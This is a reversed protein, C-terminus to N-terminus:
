EIVEDRGDMLQLFFESFARATLNTKENNIHKVLWDRLFTWNGKWRKVEENRDEVAKLLSDIAKMGTDDNKLEELLMENQERLRRVEALLLPADAILQADANAYENEVEVEALVCNDHSTWNSEIVIASVKDGVKHVDIAWPVPTHGEYKDTDIM